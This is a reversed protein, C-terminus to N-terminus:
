RDKIAKYVAYSGLGLGAFLAVTSALSAAQRESPLFWSIPNWWSGTAQAGAQDRPIRYLVMAEELSKSHAGVAKILEEAYPRARSSFADHERGPLARMVPTASRMLSLLSEVVELGRGAAIRLGEDPSGEVVRKYRLCTQRVDEALERAEM